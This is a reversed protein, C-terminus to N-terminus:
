SQVRNKIEQCARSVSIGLCKLVVTLIYVNQCRKSFVFSLKRRYISKFSYFLTFPFGRRIADKIKIFDVSLILTQLFELKPFFVASKKFSTQRIFGHIVQGFNVTAQEEKLM